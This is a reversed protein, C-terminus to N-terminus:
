DNENNKEEKRQKLTVPVGPIGEAHALQQNDYWREFDEFHDKIYKLCENVIYSISFLTGKALRQVMNHLTETFMVSIYYPSAITNHRAYGNDTLSKVVDKGCYEVALFMLSEMDLDYTECANKAWTGVSHTLTLYITIM